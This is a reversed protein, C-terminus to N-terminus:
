SPVHMCIDTYIVATFQRISLSRGSSRGLLVANRVQRVCDDSLGAAAFTRSNLSREISPGLLVATRVIDSVAATTSCDFNGGSM